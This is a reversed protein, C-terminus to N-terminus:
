KRVGKRRLIVLFYSQVAVMRDIRLNLINIGILQWFFEVFHPEWKKYM